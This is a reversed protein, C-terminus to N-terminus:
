FIIKFGTSFKNLYEFNPATRGNEYTVTFNYHKAPDFALNWAAEGHHHFGRLNRRGIGEDTTFAIEEHSALHMLREELTISMPFSFLRWQLLGKMGLNSRFIPHRPITVSLTKATNEVTENRVNGGFDFSLYPIFRYGNNIEVLDTRELLDPQLLKRKENISAIWRHFRFEFRILGLTNIRNFARDAELKPGIFFDYNALKLWSLRRWDRLTKLQVDDAAVLKAGPRGLQPEETVAENKINSVKSPHLGLLALSIANDSKTDGLGVDVKLEPQLYWRRWPRYKKYPAWAFDIDFQPKQGVAANTALELTLEPDDPPSPLGAITITGKADISTGAGDTITGAPVSLTHAQGDNLKQDLKVEILNPAPQKAVGTLNQFHDEVRTGEANIRLTKEQINLNAPSALPGTAKIRIEKRTNSANLSEVISASKEIKFEVPTLPKGDFVVGNIKLVYTKDYDISNNLKVTIRACELLCEPATGSSILNQPGSRLITALNELERKKQEEDKLANIREVDLAVSAALAAAEKVEYVEYNRIDRLKLIEPRPIENLLDFSLRLETRADVVQVSPTDQAYTSNAAVLLSCVLLARFFFMHRGKM